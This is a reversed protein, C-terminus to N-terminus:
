KLNRLGPFLYGFGLSIFLTLPLVMFFLRTAHTGGDYTISSAIPALLLFTLFFIAQRYDILFSKRTKIIELIKFLGIVLFPLFAALIGGMKGIGHRLNPDGELVLFNFSFSSIYSKAITIAWSLPKNHFLYAFKPTAMGVVQDKGHVADVLRQRNIEFKLNSDSFINLYSFRHLGEGLLADKAFPALFLFCVIFTLSLKKFNLSFIEKKYLLLTFLGIFPLFLRSTAYTYFCLSLAILSFIALALRRGELFRFFLWFGLCLFFFLATVEFGARSYHIHWPLVTLVLASLLSFAFNKSVQLILLFFTLIGLVGFVAAPLRVGWENLGFISITGVASYLYVPARFDAFSRFSIPFKNGFYDAGTKLFSYAQYGLDVEDSFLAPPYQNLKTFRLVSASFVLWAILVLQGKKMKGV